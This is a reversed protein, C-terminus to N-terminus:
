VARMVIDLATEPGMGKPSEDLHVLDGLIDANRSFWQLAILLVAAFFISFFLLSLVCGQQLGQGVEFWKSCEGDESRVCARMGDHFQRIVALIQPPVGLCTLVQWLLTRDVSDYAKQFDIFCLFLPVRGKRGLEQLRRVVFMM